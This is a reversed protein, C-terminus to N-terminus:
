DNGIIPQSDPQDGTPRRSGAAGWWALLGLVSILGGLGATAFSMSTGWTEAVSGVIMSGIPTTGANALTYLSIVRGRLHDPTTLQLKTNVGTLFQIMTYGMIFMLVVALWTTHVFFVMATAISLLIGPTVINQLPLDKRNQAARLLAGLLAGAGMASMLGGYGQSDQHLVQKALLPVLTGWNIVFLGVGFTLLVLMLVIPTKWAYSLGERIEHVVSRAKKAKPLGPAKIAFLAVIVALFSVGNLFFALGIGFQAILLGAVAPGIIRAGNFVASNLAVASALDERGVLDVMFAQRAPMDLTNFIGLLLALAAVHWYQVTHTWVLAALVFALVMFVTQTIIILRKKPLRDIFAGAFLSFLLLPLFQLTNILGLRFPSDTMQLILWSQGLTQMWSGIVSVLQGSFFLAYDRHALAGSQPRFRMAM